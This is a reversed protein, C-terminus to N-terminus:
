IKVDLNVQLFGCGQQVRLSHVGERGGLRFLDLIQFGAPLFFNVLATFYRTYYKLSISSARTFRVQLPQDVQALLDDADRPLLSLLASLATEAQKPPMRRMLDM